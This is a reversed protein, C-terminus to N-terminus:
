QPWMATAQSVTYFFVLLGVVLGVVIWSGFLLVLAWLCGTRGSSQYAREAGRRTKEVKQASLRNQRKGGKTALLLLVLVLLLTTQGDIM